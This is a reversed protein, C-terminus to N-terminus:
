RASKATPNRNFFRPKECKSSSESSSRRSKESPSSIHGKINDLVLVPSGTMATSFVLKQIEEEREPLAALPTYGLRSVVAM